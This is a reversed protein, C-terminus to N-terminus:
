LTVKQTLTNGTSQSMPVYSYITISTTAASSTANQTLATYPRPTSTFSPRNFTMKSLTGPADYDYGEILGSTPICFCYGTTTQSIAYTYIPNSVTYGSGKYCVTKTPGTTLLMTNTDYMSMSDFVLSTLGIKIEMVNDIAGTAISIRFIGSTNTSNVTYRVWAYTANDGGIFSYCNMPDESGNIRFDVCWHCVTFLSDVCVLNNGNIYVIRATGVCVQPDLRKRSVPPLIDGAPITVQPLLRVVNISSFDSNTIIVATNTQIVGYTTNPISAMYVPYAGVVSTPNLVRRRLITTNDTNISFSVLSLGSISNNAKYNILNYLQNGTKVMPGTLWCEDYNSPSSTYTVSSLRERYCVNNYQGVGIPGTTGGRPSQPGNCNISAYIKDGDVILGSSSLRPMSPAIIGIETDMNYNAVNVGDRTVTMINNLTKIMINGNSLKVAQSRNMDHTTQLPLLGYQGAWHGTNPNGTISSTLLKIVNM